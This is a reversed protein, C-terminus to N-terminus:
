RLERWVGGEMQISVEWGATEGLWRGLCPGLEGKAVAHYIEVNNFNWQSRCHDTPLRASRMYSFFKGMAVKKAQDSEKSEIAVKLHQLDAVELLKQKASRAVDGRESM